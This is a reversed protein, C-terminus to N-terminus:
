GRQNDRRPAKVGTQVGGPQRMMPRSGAPQNSPAKAATSPNVASGATGPMGVLMPKEKDLADVLEELSQGPRVLEGRQLNWAYDELTMLGERKATVLGLLDQSSMGGAEFDTNLTIQCKDPDEDVLRAMMRVAQTFSESCSLAIDSLSATEGSSRINLAEATETVRKKDEMMQAGLKSMYRDTRDVARELAGLGDGHFELYEASAGAPLLWIISESIVFKHQDDADVGQIWPVPFATKHLGANVDVSFRWHDINAEAMALMPPQDPEARQNRPGMFYFPIEQIPKGGIRIAPRVTNGQQVWAGDRNPVIFRVTYYGEADLELVRFRPKYVSGFGDPSPIDVFEQLIVQDLVRVGDVIRHRWNRIAEANYGAMFPLPTKTINGSDEEVDVLIGYRGKTLVEYTAGKTFTGISDGTNTVNKERATLRSTLTVVPERRFIQGIFAAATKALAGYWSGRNIYALYEEDSKHGTLKPVYTQGARIMARRGGLCDSLMQWEPARELYAPHLDTVPM